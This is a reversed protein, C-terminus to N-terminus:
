VFPSVGDRVMRKLPAEGSRARRLRSELAAICADLHLTCVGVDFAAFIGDVERLQEVAAELAAIAEDNSM